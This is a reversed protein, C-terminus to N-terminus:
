LAVYDFYIDIVAFKMCRFVEDLFHIIEAELPVPGM